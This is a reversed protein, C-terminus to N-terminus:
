EALRISPIRFSVDGALTVMADYYSPYDKRYTELLRPAGGGVLPRLQKELAANTKQVVPLADMATWYRMEDLNSGVILPVNPTEGAAIVDLPVKKFVANDYVFCGYGEATKDELRMMQEMSLKQLQVPTSVGAGTLVKQAATTAEEM